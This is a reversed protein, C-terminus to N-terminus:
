EDRDGHAARRGDEALKRYPPPQIPINKLLYIKVSAIKQKGGAVSPEYLVTQNLM